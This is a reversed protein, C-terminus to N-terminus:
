EEHGFFNECIGDRILEDLIELRAEDPNDQSLLRKKEERLETCSFDLYSDRIADLEDFDINAM